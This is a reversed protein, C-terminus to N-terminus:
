KEPCASDGADGVADGGGDGGVGLYVMTTFSVASARPSGGEAMNTTPAGPPFKSYPPSAPSPPQKAERHKWAETAGVEGLSWRLITKKKVRESCARRRVGKVADSSATPQGVAPVKGCPSRRALRMRLAPVEAPVPRPRAAEAGPSSSSSSASLKPAARPTICSIRLSPWM